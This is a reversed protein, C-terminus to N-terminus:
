LSHAQQHIYNIIAKIALAKCKNFEKFSVDVEKLTAHASFKHRLEVIQSVDNSIDIGLQLCMFRILRKSTLLHTREEKTIGGLLSSALQNQLTQHFSEQFDQAILEIVKYFNLFSESRWTTELYCGRLFYNIANDIIKTSKKEDPLKDLIALTKEIEGIKKAGIPLYTQRVFEVAGMHLYPKKGSIQETHLRNVKYSVGTHISFVSLVQSLRLFGKNKAEEPTNASVVTSIVYQNHEFDIKCGGLEQGLEMKHFLQLFAKVRYTNEESM